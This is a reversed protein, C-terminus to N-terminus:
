RSPVRRLKWAVQEDRAHHPRGRAYSSLKPTDYLIQDSRIQAGGLLFTKVDINGAGFTDYPLDSRKEKEEVDRRSRVTVKSFKFNYRM